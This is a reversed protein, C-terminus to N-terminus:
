SEHKMRLIQVVTGEIVSTYSKKGWRSSCWATVASRVAEPPVTGCEILAVHGEQLNQVHPLYVSSLKVGYDQRVKTHTKITFGESQKSSSDPLVIKYQCGLQTLKGLIQDVMLVVVQPVVVKKNM